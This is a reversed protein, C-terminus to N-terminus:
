WLLVLMTDLNRLLTQSKRREISDTDQDRQELSRTISHTLTHKLILGGGLVHQVRENLVMLWTEDRKGGKDRGAFALAPITGIHTYTRIHIGGLEEM